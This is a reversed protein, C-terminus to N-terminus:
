MQYRLVVGTPWLQFGRIPWMSKTFDMLPSELNIEETEPQADHPSFAGRSTGPISAGSPGSQSFEEMPRLIQAAKRKSHSINTASTITNPQGNRHGRREHKQGNDNTCTETRRQILYSPPHKLLDEENQQKKNMRPPHTPQLAM